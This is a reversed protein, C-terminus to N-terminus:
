DITDKRIGYYNGMHQDWFVYCENKIGDEFNELSVFCYGEGSVEGPRKARTTEQTPEAFDSYNRQLAAVVTSRGAGSPGTITVIKGNAKKSM